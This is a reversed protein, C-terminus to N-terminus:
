NSTAFADKIIFSFYEEDHFGFAKRKIVKIKNNIGELRSTH